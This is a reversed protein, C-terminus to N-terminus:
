WKTLRCMSTSALEPQLTYIRTTDIVELEDETLLGFIVWTLPHISFDCSQTMTSADKAIYAVMGNEIIREYKPNQKTPLTHTSASIHQQM